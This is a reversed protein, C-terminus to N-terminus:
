HDDMEKDHTEKIFYLTTVVVFAFAIFCISVVLDSSNEILAPVAFHLLKSFFFSRSFLKVRDKNSISEAILTTSPYIAIGTCVKQILFNYFSLSDHDTGFLMIVRTIILIANLIFLNGKRGLAKINMTYSLLFALPIGSLATTSAIIQFNDNYKYFKIENSNFFMLSSAFVFYVSLNIFALLSLSSDKKKTEQNATNQLLNSKLQGATDNIKNNAQNDSVTIEEAESTEYITEDEIEGKKSIEHIHNYIKLNLDIIEKEKEEKDSEAYMNNFKAIKISNTNADDLRDHILLYRPSTVLFFVFIIFITLCGGMVIYYSFKWDMDFGSIFPILSAVIYFPIAIMFLYKSRSNKCAIEAFLSNKSIFVLIHAVGFLVAMMMYSYFNEVFMLLCSLSLLISGVKISFERSKYHFYVQMLIIGIVEGTFVSDNIVTNKISDCYFGLQYSWGKYSKETNVTFSFEDSNCWEYKLQTDKKILNGSKDYVTVVPPTTLIPINYECFQTFLAIWAIALACVLQYKHNGGIKELIKETNIKEIIDTM